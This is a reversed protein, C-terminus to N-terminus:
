RFYEGFDKKSIVGLYYALFQQSFYALCSCFGVTKLGSQN